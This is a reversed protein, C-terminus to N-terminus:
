KNSPTSILYQHLLYLGISASFVLILQIRLSKGIIHRIINLQCTKSAGLLAFGLAHTPINSFRNTEILAKVVDLQGAESAGILALSLFDIPINDFRDTRILVQVIDLQGSISSGVLAVVLDEDRIDNFQNSETFARLIELKDERCTIIFLNRLVDNPIYQDIKLLMKIINLKGHLVAEPLRQLLYDKKFESHVLLVRLVTANDEEVARYIM